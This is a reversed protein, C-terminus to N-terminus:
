AGQQSGNGKGGRKYIGLEASLESVHGGLKSKPPFMKRWPGTSWILTL